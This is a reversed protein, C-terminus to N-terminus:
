KICKGHKDIYFWNNSEWKTYDGEVVFKCHLSVKAWGNQFPFACIYKPKIIIEGKNNAYGIKQNIIIRFLGESIYDPGNDFWFIEYLERENRDIGILRRNNTMVIGFDRITDSYCYYYKGLQIVTDGNQNIYGSKIGVEDNKGQYIKLLYDKRGSQSFCFIPLFICSLIVTYFNLM